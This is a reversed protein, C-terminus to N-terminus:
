FGMVLGYERGRGKGKGRGRGKRRGGREKEEKCTLIYSEAKKGVNHRSHRGDNTGRYPYGM